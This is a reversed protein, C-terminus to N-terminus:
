TRATSPRGLSPLGNRFSVSSRRVQHKVTRRAEAAPVRTEDLRRPPRAAVARRRLRRGALGPGQIAPERGAAPAWRAEARVACWRQSTDPRVRPHARDCSHRLRKLARREGVRRSRPAGSLRSEDSVFKLPRTGRIWKAAPDHGVHGPSRAPGPPRLTIWRAAPFAAMIQAPAVSPRHGRTASTGLAAPGKDRLGRRAVRLSDAPFDASLGAVQSERAGAAAAIEVVRAGVLSLPLPRAPFRPRLRSTM